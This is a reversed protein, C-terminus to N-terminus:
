QQTKARALHRLERLSKAHAPAVLPATSGLDSYSVTYTWTDWTVAIERIIGDAGVTIATDLLSAPDAAADHAVYGFPFVRIAEGEKFGTERAIQGAPVTGSYVTSGDSQNTTTLGGATMAGTFRGLTPGGVDERIAHLQDDPTAGSGPDISSTPGLEVWGRHDPDHGYMMGSVVLLPYASRPRGPSDDSIEVDNGNWRV